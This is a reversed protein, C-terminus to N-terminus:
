RKMKNLVTAFQIQPLSRRRAWLSKPIGIPDHTANSALPVLRVDVDLGVLSPANGGNVEYPKLPFTGVLASKFM